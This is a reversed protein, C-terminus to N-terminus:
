IVVREFAVLCLCGMILVVLFFLIALILMQQRTM